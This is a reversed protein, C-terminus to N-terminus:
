LRLLWRSPCKTRPTWAKDIFEVPKGRLSLSAELYLSVAKCSLDQRVVVKFIRVDDVYRM